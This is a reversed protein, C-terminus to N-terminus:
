LVDELARQRRRLERLAVEQQSLEADLATEAAALEKRLMAVKATLM